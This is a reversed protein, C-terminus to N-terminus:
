DRASVTHLRAASWYIFVKKLHNEECVYLFYITPCAPSARRQYRERSSHRKRSCPVVVREAHVADVEQHLVTWHLDHASDGKLRQGLEASRYAQAFWTFDKFSAPVCDLM